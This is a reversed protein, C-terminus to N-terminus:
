LGGELVGVKCGVQTVRGAGRSGGLHRTTGCFTGCGSGDPLVPELGPVTQVLSGCLWGVLAGGCAPEAAGFGLCKTSFQSGMGCCLPEHHWQHLLGQRACIGPRTGCWVM